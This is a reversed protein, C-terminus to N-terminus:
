FADESLQPSQVNPMLAARGKETVTWGGHVYPQAYGANCLRQMTREISNKALPGHIGWQAAHKGSDIM